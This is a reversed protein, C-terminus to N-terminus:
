QLCCFSSCKNSRSCLLKKNTQKNKYLTRSVDSCSLEFIWFCFRAASALSSLYSARALCASDPRPMIKDLLEHGMFYQKQYYFLALTLYVSQNSDFKTEILKFFSRTKLFWSMLITLSLSRSKITLLILNELGHIKM